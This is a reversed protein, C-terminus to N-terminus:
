TRPKRQPVTKFEATVDRGIEDENQREIYKKITEENLGVTSVFYGVAWMSEKQSYVKRIFSFREKLEKSTREKLEQVVMSLAYKPPVEILLHVHDLDTNLSHIYWSPYRKQVKIM